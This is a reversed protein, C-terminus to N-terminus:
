GFHTACPWEEYSTQKTVVRLRPRLQRSSGSDLRPNCLGSAFFARINQLNSCKMHSTDSESTNTASPGLKKSQLARAKLSASSSRHSVLDPCHQCENGFTGNLASILVCPFVYLASRDACNTSGPERCSACSLVRSPTSTAAVGTAPIQPKATTCM